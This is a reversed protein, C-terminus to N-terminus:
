HIVQVLSRITPKGSKPWITVLPQYDNDTDYGPPYVHTVEAIRGEKNRRIIGFSLQHVMVNAIHIGYTDECYIVREDECDCDEIFEILSNTDVPDFNYPKVKVDDGHILILIRADDRNITKTPLFVKM